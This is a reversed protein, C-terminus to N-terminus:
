HTVPLPPLYFSRLSNSSGLANYSEKWVSDWESRFPAPNRWLTVYGQDGFISISNFSTIVKVDQQVLERAYANLERAKSGGIVRFRSYNEDREYGAETLESPSFFDGGGIRNGQFDEEPQGNELLDDQYCGTCQLYDTTEDAFRFHTRYGNMPNRQCIMRECGECYHYAFDHNSELFSQHCDEECFYAVRGDSWPTDFLEEQVAYFLFPKECEECTHLSQMRKRGESM